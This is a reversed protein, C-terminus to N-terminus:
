VLWYKKGQLNTHMYTSKSLRYTFWLKKNKRQKQKKNKNKNQKTNRSVSYKTSRHAFIRVYGWGRCIGVGSRFGPEVLITYYARCRPSLVGPTLCM